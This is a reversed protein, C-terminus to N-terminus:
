RSQLKKLTDKLRTLAERPDEIDKVATEMPCFGSGDRNKIAPVLTDCVSFIGHATLLRRAQESMVVAYVARVGLLIYLFAAGKGVVKDAAYGGSFDEGGDYWYLLPAIGRRAQCFTKEGKCVVCTYGGENLKEKARALPIPIEFEKTMRQPLEKKSINHNYWM